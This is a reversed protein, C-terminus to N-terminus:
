NRAVVTIFYHLTACSVCEGRPLDPVIAITEDGPRIARYLVTRRTHHVLVLASGAEDFHSYRRDPIQLVAMEGVRLTTRGELTLPSPKDAGWAESSILSGFALLLLRRARMPTIM